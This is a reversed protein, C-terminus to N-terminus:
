NRGPLDAATGFVGINFWDTIGYDVLLGHGIVDTSYDNFFVCYQITLQGQNLTGSTPNLFMGTMGDLTILGRGGRYVPGASRAVHIDDGPQTAPEAAVVAAAAGTGAAPETAPVEALMLPRELKLSLHSDASPTGAQSDALGLSKWVSARDTLQM